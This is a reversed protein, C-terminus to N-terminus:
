GAFVDEPLKEFLEYTIRIHDALIDSSLPINRALAANKLAEHEAHLDRKLNTGYQIGL